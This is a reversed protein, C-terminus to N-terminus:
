REMWVTEALSSPSVPATWRGSPDAHRLARLRLVAGAALSLVDRLAHQTNMKSSFSHLVARKEKCLRVHFVRSPLAKLAYLLFTLNLQLVAALFFYRTHSQLLNSFKRCTGKVPSVTHIHGSPVYWRRPRPPM